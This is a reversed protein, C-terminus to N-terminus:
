PDTCLDGAFTRLGGGLEMAMLEADRDSILDGDGFITLRYVDSRLVDSVVTIEIENSATNFWYRGYDVDWENDDGFVGDGGSRTLVVSDGAHSIM